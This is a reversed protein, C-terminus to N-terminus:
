ERHELIMALTKAAPTEAVRAAVNRLRSEDLSHCLRTVALLDAGTPGRISGATADTSNFTRILTELVDFADSPRAHRSYTLAQLAMVKAEAQGRSLPHDYPKQLTALSRMLLEPTDAPSSQFVERSKEFRLHTRAQRSGHFLIQVDAETLGRSVVATETEIVTTPSTAPLATPQLSKSDRMQSSTKELASTAAPMTATAAATATAPPAKSKSNRHWFRYGGLAIFFILGSTFILKKM